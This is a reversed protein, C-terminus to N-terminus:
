RKKKMGWLYISAGIIIAIDAINVVSRNFLLIWDFVFGTTIRDFLNGLAGGLLIGLAAASRMKGLRIEAILTRIILLLIIITIAVIIVQPIPVNAIVGHNQHHTLAVVDPFPGGSKIIPMQMMWIKSVRDAIFIIVIWLLATITAPISSFFRFGGPTGTPETISREVIRADSGEQM